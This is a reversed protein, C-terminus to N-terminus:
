RRWRTLMFGFLSDLPQGYFSRTEVVLGSASLIERTVITRHTQDIRLVDVTEPNPVSVVVGIKAHAVMERLLRDPRDLHELIELAVFFDAPRPPVWEDIDVGDIGADVPVYRGRFFFENRLCFDFETWGAGIDFVLCESNLGAWRMFDIAARYRIARWEYKGVRSRLYSEAAVIRDARLGPRMLACDPAPMPSSPPMPEHSKM